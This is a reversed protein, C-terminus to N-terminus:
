WNVAREIGAVLEAAMREHTKVSPHYDSGYGDAAKQIDFDLVDIRTDGAARRQAVVERNWRRLHELKEGPDMLPGNTLLILARPRKSRVFDLFRSYTGKWELDSMTGTRFDNTGLNIVVVDPVPGRDFDWRPDKRDPDIRLYVSPMSESGPSETLRIGSVSVSVHEAFLQRAAIAAYTLYHNSNAASVREAANHAEDGYGCTISDGIFEINRRALPAPLVRAGAPLQLGYFRTIGFAAETRKFLIATHEGPPLDRGVVFLAPEKKLALVATPNGDIVVQIRDDRTTSLRAGIATGSFHVIVESGPFSACPAGPMQWDFRGNYRLLPNDPRVEL